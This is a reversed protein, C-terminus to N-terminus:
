FTGRVRLLAAECGRGASATRQAFQYIEGARVNLTQTTVNDSCKLKVVHRGPQLAIPDGPGAVAAGDLEIVAIPQGHRTAGYFHTDGSTIYAVKSAPRGGPTPTACGALAAAAALALVLRRILM